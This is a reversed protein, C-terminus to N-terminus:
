LSEKSRYSSKDNSGSGSTDTPSAMNHPQNNLSLYESASLPELSKEEDVSRPSDEPSAQEPSIVKRFLGTNHQHSFSHAPFQPFLRDSSCGLRRQPTSLFLSDILFSCTFLNYSMPPFVMITNLADLKIHSEAQDIYLLSSSGKIYVDLPVPHHRLVHLDLNMQGQSGALPYLLISLPKHGMTQSVSHPQHCVWYASIIIFPYSVNATMGLRCQLQSLGSSTHRNDQRYGKYM